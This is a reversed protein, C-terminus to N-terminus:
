WGLPKPRWSMCPFTTSHTTSGQPLGAPAPAHVTERSGRHPSASPRRRCCPTSGCRAEVWSPLSQRRTETRLPCRSRRGAANGSTIDRGNGRWRGPQTTTRDDWSPSTSSSSLESSQAITERASNPRALVTQDGGDNGKVDGANAVSLGFDDCYHGGTATWDPTVPM